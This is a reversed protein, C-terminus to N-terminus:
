GGGEEVKDGGGAAPSLELNDLPRLSTYYHQVTTRLSSSVHKLECLLHAVGSHLATLTLM